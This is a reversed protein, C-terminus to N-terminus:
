AWHASDWYGMRKTDTISSPFYYGWVWTPEVGPGLPDDVINEDIELFAVDANPMVRTIVEDILLSEGVFELIEATEDTQTVDPELIFRLLDILEYKETTICEVKYGFTNPDVISFTLKKIVFNVNCDRETSTLNILMGARLGTTYTFFTADQIEDAYTQLEAIARRRATDNDEISRDRIVKDRRGYLAESSASGSIALVPIKPNGSFRIIDGAGLPNEWRITKEQFNFLVDVAPFSDIFDVGVTQPVFGSGTDLSVTLNAFKYPLNFSTTDSGSVTIDDTFTAGNYEGGRVIVRNVIQSGDAKRVLGRYAYNGSTDTLNYPALEAFRPSFHLDNDVDVWWEYSLIRALRGIADSVPINNFVIQQIVFTGTVNNTSFDPAFEAILETLIQAISKNQYARAVLLSDLKWSSSACQITYRLAGPAELAEDFNMINGTFIKTAGDYIDVQDDIAPVYTADGYKRIEFSASSVQNTISTDVSLSEGLITTTVDVSNIEVTIM